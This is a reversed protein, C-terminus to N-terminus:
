LVRFVLLQLINPKGRLLGLYWEERVLSEAQKVYPPRRKSVKRARFSGAADAIQYVEGNGGKGLLTM